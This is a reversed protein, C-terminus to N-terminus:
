HYFYSQKSFMESYIGPQAMLDEHSGTQVLSGKDFVLITDSFFTSTLRHSIFVTLKGKNREAINKFIRYESLPDIAATPEDLIMVAGDHCYARAIALKQKEGGSLVLGDDYLEKTLMTEDQAPLGAIMESLDAAAYCQELHNKTVEKDFAVNEKISYSFIEYDQFVPSIMKQYESYPYQRIDVGNLLIEGETVDFLRMLLYIFTTKGAGNEGVISIISNTSFAVSVNKLAYKDSGPYRFSVNRFEITIDKHAKEHEETADAEDKYITEPMRMYKEYDAFYDNVRMVEVFGDFLDKISNAIEQSATIYLVFASISINGLYFNQIALLYIAVIQIMHIGQDLSHWFNMKRTKKDEIEIIKASIDKYKETLTDAFNYIQIEKAFRTDFLIEQYYEEKRTYEAAMGTYEHEINATKKRLFYRFCASLLVILLSLFDIRAFLYGIAILSLISGGIDCLVVYDIELFEYIAREGKSKLDLVSPNLLDQYDISMSKRKAKMTVLNDSKSAHASLMDRCKRNGYDLLAILFSALIIVIGYAMRNKNSIILELVIAPFVISIIKHFKEALTALLEYFLSAKNVSYQLKFIKFVNRIINRVKGMM